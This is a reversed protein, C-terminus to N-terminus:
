KEIPYTKDTKGFRVEADTLRLYFPELLAVDEAGRKKYKELGLKAVTLSSPFKKKFARQFKEIGKGGGIIYVDQPIEEPKKISYNEFKVLQGNQCVYGATYVQGKQADIMPYVKMEEYCFPIERALADLTNVSVVPIKFVLELAKVFSLGVRLATFFGPGISIAILGLESPKFEVIRKLSEFILNIRESHTFPTLSNIEVVPNGESIIGLSTADTSTEVGLVLLKLLNWTGQESIEEM